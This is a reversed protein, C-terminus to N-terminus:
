SRGLLLTVGSHRQGLMGGTGHVLAVEADAVQRAGAERRLQHTAEIVLFIGRM